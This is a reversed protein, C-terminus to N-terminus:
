VVIARHGPAMTEDHQGDIARITLNEPLGRDMFGKGVVGTM